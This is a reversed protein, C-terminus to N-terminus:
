RNSARTVRVKEISVAEPAALLENGSPTDFTDADKISKAFRINGIQEELDEIPVMREIWEDSVDFEVARTVEFDVSTLDQELSFGFAELGAEGVAVIIKWYNRPIQIEVEGVDDFGNFVPDDDDFLPGSFVCYKETKAQKLVLNELKGWIGQLRSQNFDKVQPSCNTVHYTDGNAREVTKYTRGFCVADRRVLHGKDFAQRDKNYFNDPLQFQPPVRPDVLWKERDNEGFGGLSKRTYVRDPDPRRSKERGDVNAATFLAMRRKKDLVISFNQYPIVHDDNDLKVVKSKSRVSPIPVDLGEDLFTERYGRRNSYQTDIIPFKTAETVAITSTVTDTGIGSVSHGATKPVVGDLSVTFTIPLTVRAGGQIPEVRV